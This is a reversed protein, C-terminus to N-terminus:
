AAEAADAARLRRRLRELDQATFGEAALWAASGGWGTDIFGFFREMTEPVPALQSADIGELEARYTSSGRLRETIAEIREASAMYDAVIVRRDFGAADLAVAVVVGTRDKGAACHVLVAGQTHTITRISGVVSDPRRRLYSLYARVPPTEDVPEEDRLRQWPKLTSLELDTNGGSDPYLSRHEIRVEPVRTMPGPGEQEVEVDTRLDLVAKVGHEETLVHVDRESLSQLNDSRLLVGPVVARANAAGELAIWRPTM